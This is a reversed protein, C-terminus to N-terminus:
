VVGGEAKINGKKINDELLKECYEWLEPAGKPTKENRKLIQNIEVAHERWAKGESADNLLIPQIKDLANAFKAEESTGEEFEEWLNRLEKDQEKPLIGYIREAAKVERERKTSNGADDYAYTDGADLEVIDHILVMTMTKLVDIEKPAYEKLLFCMMALHWSHETDNEKRSGDSLYSQRQVKKLNDIELIFKMQQKLREM